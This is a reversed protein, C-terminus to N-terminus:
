KCATIVSVPMLICPQGLANKIRGLDECGQDTLCTITVVTPVNTSTRIIGWNHLILGKTDGGEENGEGKGKPIAPVEAGRATSTRVGFGFIDPAERSSMVNNAQRFSARRRFIVLQEARGQGAGVFSKIPM